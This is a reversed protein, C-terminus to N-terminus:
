TLVTSGSTTRDYPALRGDITLSNTPSPRTDHFLFLMHMRLGWVFHSTLYKYLYYVGEAYWRGEPVFALM